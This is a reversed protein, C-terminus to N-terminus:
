VLCHNSAHSSKEKLSGWLVELYAKMVSRLRLYLFLSSPETGYRERLEQFSLMGNSGSIDKTFTIFAM